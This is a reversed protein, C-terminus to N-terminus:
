RTSVKSSKYEGQAYRSIVESSEDRKDGGAQDKRKKKKGQAAGVVM